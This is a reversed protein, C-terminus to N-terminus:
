VLAESLIPFLAIGIVNGSYSYRFTRMKVKNKYGYIGTYPRFFMCADPLLITYIWYGAYGTSAFLGNNIVTIGTRLRRYVSTVLWCNWILSRQWLIAKYTVGVSSGPGLGISRRRLIFTRFRVGHRKTCMYALGSLLVSSRFTGQVEFCCRLIRREAQRIHADHVVWSCRLSGDVKRGM